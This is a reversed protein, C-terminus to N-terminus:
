FLWQKHCFHEGIKEANHAIVVKTHDVSIVQQVLTHFPREEGENLGFEHVDDDDLGKGEGSFKKGAWIWFEKIKGSLILRIKGLIGSM